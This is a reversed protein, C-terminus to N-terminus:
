GGEAGADQPPFICASSACTQGPLCAHGCAGCNKVDNALAVECGDAAVGNCDGFGPSCQLGCAAGICTATSNLGSPCPSCSAGCSGLGANSACAGGCVHFNTDCALGCVGAVCTSGGNTVAPCASNCGGCHSTSTLLDVCQTGCLVPAIATCGTACSFNGGSTPACDPAAPQCTSNCSGCHSAASLDTECGDIPDGNCDAYGSACQAVQCRGAGCAASAHPLQCPSCSTAGCGYLPDSTAVCQGDCPQYGPVCGSDRGTESPEGTDSAPTADEPSASLADGAASGDAGLAGPENRLLSNCGLFALVLASLAVKAAVPGSRM